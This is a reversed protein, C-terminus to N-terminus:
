SAIQNLLKESIHRQEASYQDAKENILRKAADYAGLQIYQQALEFNKHFNALLQKFAVQKSQIYSRSISILSAQLLEM